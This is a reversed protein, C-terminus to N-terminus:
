KKHRLVCKTPWFGCYEESERERKVEERTKNEKENREGPLGKDGATSFM